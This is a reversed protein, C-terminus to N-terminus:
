PYRLKLDMTRRTNFDIICALKPDGGGTAAATELPALDQCEADRWSTWQTQSDNLFHKWRTKRTALMKPKGDVSKLAAELASALERESKDSATRLCDALERAGIRSSDCAVQSPNAADARAAAAIFFCFLTFVIRRM